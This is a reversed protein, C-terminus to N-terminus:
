KKIYAQGILTLNLTTDSKKLDFTDTVFYFNISDLGNIFAMLKNFNGSVNLELPIKTINNSVNQGNFDPKITLTVQNKTALEELDSLLKLEDGQKIFITDLNQFSNEVETLEEKIKKANLGLNLKAELELKEQSIENKISIIKHFAPYIFIVSVILLM